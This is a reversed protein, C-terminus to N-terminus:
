EESRRRCQKRTQVLRDNVQVVVRMGHALRQPPGCASLRSKVTGVAEPMTKGHTGFDDELHGFGFFATIAGRREAVADGRLRIGYIFQARHHPVRDTAEEVVWLLRGFHDAQM